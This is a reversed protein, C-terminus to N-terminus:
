KVVVKKAKGDKVVINIGKMLKDTKYGTISYIGDPRQDASADANDTIGDIGTTGSKTVKVTWDPAYYRTVKQNVSETNAMFDYFLIEGDEAFTEDAKVEFTFLTGETGKMVLSEGMPNPVVAVHLGNTLILYNPLRETNATYSYEEDEDLAISLGEPFKLEYQLGQLEDKDFSLDFSVEKTEGPAISFDSVKIQEATIMFEQSYVPTKFDEQTYTTPVGNVAISGQLKIFEISDRAALNEDAVVDFTFLDGSGASLGKNLFGLAFAASKTTKGDLTIFYAKESREAKGCVYSQADGETPVFSLGEPLNIRGSMATIREANTLKVTLTAKEGPKVFYKDIAFDVGAALAKGSVAFAFAAMCILLKTCKM